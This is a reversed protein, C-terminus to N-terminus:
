INEETRLDVTTVFPEINALRGDVIEYCVLGNTLSPDSRTVKRAHRNMGSYSPLITLDYQYRKGCWRDELPVSVYEHFHGRMYVRAPEVGLRRDEYVRDKLYYLAVNGKLWDRSGPYPGHHAVDFPVGSVRVRGHHFAQVDKGTDKQLRYAVRAEACEPVHVQTGTVLRAVRVNSLSLLPLLNFYGITRQDERTTDPILNGFRDGQTLDGDHFVILEDGDAFACIEEINQQYLQWLYKQTETLDPSWEYIDGDDTEGVLVTDPNLLGM